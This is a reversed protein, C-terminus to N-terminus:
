VIFYLTSADPTGIAAYEATTLTKVANTTYTTSIDKSIKGDAYVRVANQTPYLTDSTGLSTSTSKNTLNEKANLASQLDTQDSLTGTITGWTGGGGGSVKPLEIYTSAM